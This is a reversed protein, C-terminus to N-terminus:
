FSGVIWQGMTYSTDAIMWVDIRKGGKILGLIVLLPGLVWGFCPILIFITVGGAILLLGVILGALQGSYKVAKRM